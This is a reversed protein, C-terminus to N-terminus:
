RRGPPAARYPRPVGLGPQVARARRDVHRPAFRSRDAAGAEGHRTARGDGSVPLSPDGWAGHLDKRSRRRRCPPCGRAPGNLLRILRYVAEEQFWRLSFAAQALSAPREIGYREALTRILLDYPTWPYSGFRSRELIEILEDKYSSSEPASWLKDFWGQVEKVVGVDQRWAVLERNLRLGGSTFNASGVGVSKALIYAKAHLFGETWVRVDTCDQRLFRVLGEINAADDEAPLAPPQTDDRIAERVLYRIDAEEQARGQQALEFDKGLLLRFAELELLPGGIVGWVSPTLFGTAIDLKSANDRIEAALRDAVNVTDNDSYSLGFPDTM